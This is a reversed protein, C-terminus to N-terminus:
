WRMVSAGWALGAGFGASAVLMGRKLTGDQVSEDLAIPVSGGSTNGYRELHMVVKNRDIGLSDVAADLIRTNAQHLVWLDIDDKTVGASELIPPFLGGLLRVAWKFVPRGDMEVFHKGAAVDEPQMPNLTGGCRRILYEGGSGDAGLTYALLGQDDDGREVLVAGAGDGFLPFTTKDTPNMVRSGTDAGIVLALKSGGSYVFNMATTLAYMFGACAAGLDMAGCKLGLRDQVLCATSPLTYDSTFTGMVLLDIDNRDIGAQEICREAAYVAMHSTAMGPPVHRREKIGTRQVIWDPDCGLPILDENTVVNEPLYSGTSLIRIGMLSPLKEAPSNNDDTM